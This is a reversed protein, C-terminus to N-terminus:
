KEYWRGGLRDIVKQDVVWAKGPIHTPSKTMKDYGKYCDM